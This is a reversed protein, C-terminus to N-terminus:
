GPLIKKYFKNVSTYLTEINKNNKIIHNAIKKKEDESLQLSMRKKIQELSINRRKEARKETQFVFTEVGRTKCYTLGDACKNNSIALEPTGPHETDQMDDILARM